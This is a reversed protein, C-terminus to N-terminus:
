DPSIRVDENELRELQRNMKMLLWRLVCAGAAAVAMLGIVIGLAMRYYPETTYTFPTWISAMNGISNMFALSVTRKAPPRPIANSIWAYIQSLTLKGDTLYEIPAL